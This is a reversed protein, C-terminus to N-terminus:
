SKHDFDACYIVGKKERKERLIRRITELDGRPYGEIVELLGLLNGLHYVGRHNRALIKNFNFINM